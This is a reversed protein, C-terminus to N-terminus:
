AILLLVFVFHIVAFLLYVHMALGLLYTYLIVALLFWYVYLASPMTFIIFVEVFFSYVTCLFLCCLIKWLLSNCEKNVISRPYKMFLNWTFFVLWIFKIIEGQLSDDIKSHIQNISFIVGIKPWFILTRDRWIWYLSPM